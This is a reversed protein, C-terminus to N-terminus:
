FKSLLLYGLLFAFIGIVVLLLTIHATRHDTM